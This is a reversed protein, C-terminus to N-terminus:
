VDPRLAKLTRIDYNAQLLHTAFSHRFTHSTVRKIVAAERIAWHLEPKGDHNLLSACIFQPNIIPVAISYRRKDPIPTEAWKRFPEKSPAIIPVAIREERPTMTWKM